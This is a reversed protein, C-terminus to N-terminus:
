RLVAIKGIDQNIWIGDIKVQVQYLYVGNALFQGSQNDTHWDLESGLATDEWVLRGSLDYIQVRIEEVQTALTGMVQFTATDVDRIPNPSVLVQLQDTVTHPKNSPVIRVSDRGEIPIPIGDLTQGKLIGETDGSEFGTDQTKFHCVLDPLGDDNVDEVGCHPKPNRKGGIENIQAGEEGEPGFKLSSPNVEDPANFGETSLIAVPITGKSKLNISNPDSGPKIDIQVWIGCAGGPAPALLWPEFDVYSSVADGLGTGSGSPGSPHGWWNCTANIPADATFNEIGSETNDVINNFHAENDEFAQVTDDPIWQCIGNNNDHISNSVINNNNANYLYIGSALWSVSTYTHGYVENNEITNGSAYNLQIGFSDYGATGNDYVKNGRVINGTSNSEAENTGIFIGQRENSYVVNNEILNNNCPGAAAWITIGCGQQGGPNIHHHIINNAIELGSRAGGVIGFTGNTIEFGKITVGDASITVADGTGGGNIIAETGRVATTPNVDANPGLLTLPKNVTINEDYTGAAVYVTSGAVADIGDQITAFADYGFAHGDAPDGYSYGAWDDDVWVETQPTPTGIVVVDGWTLTHTAPVPYNGLGVFPHVASLDIDSIPFVTTGGSALQRWAADEGCNNIAHNYVGCACYHCGEVVSACNHMRVWMEYNYNSGGSHTIKIRLDFTNYYSADHASATTFRDNPTVYSEPNYYPDEGAGGIKGGTAPRYWDQFGWHRTDDSTFCTGDPGLTSVPNNNWDHDTSSNLNVMTWYVSNNDPDISTISTGATLGPMGVGKLAEYWPTTGNDNKLLSGDVDYFTIDIGGSATVDFTLPYVYGTGGWPGLNATLTGGSLTFTTQAWASVAGFVAVVLVAALIGSILRWKRPRM